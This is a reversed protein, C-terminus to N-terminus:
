KTRHASVIRVPKALYQGKMAGSGANPVTAQALIKRVVDMGKVVRGFAAFGPNGPRADMSPTAGATIFFDGMATGPTTRAM